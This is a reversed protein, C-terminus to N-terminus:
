KKNLEIKLKEYQSDSLLKNKDLRIVKAGKSFKNLHENEMACLILQYDNDIKTTILNVINEYNTHSQEQQNPTDIVLPSILESGHLGVMKFITLYYALMARASEAAGGEKVIKNYDLPSSIESLNVADAELTEIYQKLILVFDKNINDKSEKTLLKGQEKTIDKIDTKIKDVSVIKADKDVNAKHKINNGAISEIIESTNDAHVTESHISYKNNIDNIGNRALVLEKNSKELRNQIKSLASNLTELQNEAQAKDTLISTRNIITNEHIVGCLPCEVEDADINEISFQYDSDLEQIINETLLKQQELYVKEGQCYSLESLLREQQEQLVSLDHKIETTMELLESSNLSAVTTQPLYNDVVEIATEIKDIQNEFEKQEEKKDFKNKELEFYKSSLLGVHYKIITNKWSSYQGLNEFNDWATGWSRKQDIYFPLFYYAPPPVELKNSYSKLRAKFGLVDAIKVSYDGTIKDFEQFPENNIKLSIFNKHRKIIYIVEGVTFEVLTQCDLAKWTSDFSPECGVGWFLLKVLTSKGVSNDDAIILNKTRSFEFQNASKQSNSLVLLRTFKLSQM